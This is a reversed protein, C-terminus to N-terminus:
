DRRMAASNADRFPYPRTVTALGFSSHFQLGCHFNYPSEIAPLKNRNRYALASDLLSIASIIM